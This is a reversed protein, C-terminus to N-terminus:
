VSNQAGDVATDRRERDDGAGDARSERGVDRHNEAARVQQGVAEAHGDAVVLRDFRVVLEHGRHAALLLTVDVLNGIALPLLNPLNERALAKGVGRELVDDRRDGRIAPEPDLRHDGLLVAQAALM